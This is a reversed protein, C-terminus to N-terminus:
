EDKLDFAGFYISDYEASHRVSIVPQIYAANAPIRQAGRIETESDPHQLVESVFVWGPMMNRFVPCYTTSIENGQKDLYRRGFRTYASFSYATRVWASQFYDKGAEVPIPEGLIESQSSPGTEFRVFRDDFGPGGQGTEIRAAALNWSPANGSEPDLLFAPNEILNGAASFEMDLGRITTEPDDSSSLTGRVKGSTVPLDALQLFGAAPADDIRAITTVAGDEAIVEVELDYNGALKEFAEDYVILEKRNNPAVTGIEWSLIAGSGTPEIWVGVTAGEREGRYFALKRAFAEVGQRNASNSRMQPAELMRDAFKQAEDFMKLVIMVDLLDLSRPVDYNGSSVLSHRILLDRIEIANARATELDGDRQAIKIALFRPVTRGAINRSNQDATSRVRDLLALSMEEAGEWEKLHDVLAPLAVANLVSNYHDRLVEPSEDVRAILNDILVPTEADGRALNILILYLETPLSQFDGSLAMQDRAAEELLDYVASERVELLMDFAPMSRDTGGSNNRTVWGPMRMAADERLFLKGGDTGEYPMFFNNIVKAIAQPPDGRRRLEEILLRRMEYSRHDTIADVSKSWIAIAADAYGAAKLTIGITQLQGAANALFNYSQGSAQSPFKAELIKNVLSDVREAQLYAETMKPYARITQFFNLELLRDYLKSLETWAKEGALRNALGKVAFDDEPQLEVLRRLYPLSDFPNMARTSVQMQGKGDLLLAALPADPETGRRLVIGASGGSDGMLMTDLAVELHVTSGTVERFLYRMSDRAQGIDGSSARLTATGGRLMSSGEADGIDTSKWAEPNFADDGSLEVAGDRFTVGSFRALSSKGDRSGMGVGLLLPEGGEDIMMSYIDEWDGQLRRAAFRARGDKLTLRLEAPAKWIGEIDVVSHNKGRSRKELAATGEALLHILRLSEPAAELQGQLNALYEDVRGLRILTNLAELRIYRQQGSRAMFSPSQRLIRKALTEAADHEGNRVLQSLQNRLENANQTATVTLNTTKAEIAALEDTMGLKKLLEPLDFNAVREPQIAALETATARLVDEEDLEEAAKATLILKMTHASGHETSMRRLLAMSEAYRDLRQLMEAAMLLLLDDDANALVGLIRDVSESRDSAWWDYYARILELRVNARDSLDDKLASFIDTVNDIKGTNFVINFIQRYLQIEEASVFTTAFPVNRYSNLSQRGGGGRTVGIQGSTPDIFARSAGASGPQTSGEGESELSERFLGALNAQDVPDDLGEAIAARVYLPLLARLSKQIAASDGHALAREILPRAYAVEQQALFGRGIELATASENAGIVDMNERVIAAAEKIRGTSTLRRVQDALFAARMEPDNMVISQKYREALDALQDRSVRLESRSFLLNELVLHNFKYLEADFNGAELETEMVDVMEQRASIQAYAVIRSSRPADVADLLETLQKIYAASEDEAMAIGALYVLAAVQAEQLNFFQQSQPMAGGRSGLARMGSNIRLRQLNALPTGSNAEPAESLAYLNRFMARARHGVQLQELYVNQDQPWGPPPPMPQGSVNGAPVVDYEINLVKWLVGEAVDRSGQAILFEALGLLRRWDTERRLVGEALMTEFRQAALHEDLLPQLDAWLAPTELLEDLHSRLLNLAAEVEGTTLLAMALDIENEASPEARALLRAYRLWETDEGEDKALRILQQLLKPDERRYALAKALEKRAATTDRAQLYVESIYLHYEWNRKSRERRAELWDIMTAIGDTQLHLEVLPGILSRRSSFNEASEFARFYAAIAGDIDGQDALVRALRLRVDFPNTALAVARRLAENGKEQDNAAYHIDALLIHAQPDASARAMLEDAAALAEDFRQESQYALVIQRLWETTRQPELSTMRRWARVQDDADGFRRWFEAELRALSIDTPFQERVTNFVWAAREVDALQLELRALMRAAVPTAEGAELITTWEKRFDEDMGADRILRIFRTELEDLFYSNPANVRVTPFFAVADDYRELESLLRWRFDLLNFDKPARGLGEEVTALADEVRGYRRQFQAVRAYNGAKAVVADHEEIVRWAREDRNLSFLYLALRERLEFADPAADIAEYYYFIAQHSLGYQRFLDGLRQLRSAAGPESKGPALTKWAAIAQDRATPIGDTEWAMWYTEGLKVVYDWTDPDADVLLRLEQRAADVEGDALQMSALEFRVDDRDPSWEVATALWQKAEEVDGQEILLGVLDLATATDRHNELRDRYYAALGAIDEAERFANEIRSGLDRYLWSGQQTRERAERYVEIAGEVNGMREELEGLRIRAEVMRVPQGAAEAIMKEAIGRAREYRGADAFAIIVEELVYPDDPFEALLREWAAVAGETDNLRMKARAISTYVEQVKTLPLGRAVATELAAVAQALNGEALELNGLALAADASADSAAVAETFATRAVKTEGRRQGLMGRLTLYNAKLRASDAEAAAASWRADLADLANNTYFHEFVKDFAPGPRPSRVAITEYRQVLDPLEAAFAASLLVLFGVFCALVRPLPFVM